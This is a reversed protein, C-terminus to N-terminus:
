PQPHPPLRRSQSSLPVTNFPPKAKRWLAGTEGIFKGKQTKQAKKRSNRGIDANGAIGSTACLFSRLLFLRSFACFACFFFTCLNYLCSLAERQSPRKKVNAPWYRFPPERGAM